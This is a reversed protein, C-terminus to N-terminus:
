EGKKGGMIGGLVDKAKKLIGGGDSGLWAPLNAANQKLFALVRRAIGEDIGVRQLLQVLGESDGSLLQPVNAAHQQLVASIKEATGRDLGVKESLQKILDEV